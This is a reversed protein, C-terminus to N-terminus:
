QSPFLAIFYIWHKKSNWFVFFCCGGAGGGFSSNTQAHTDYVLCKHCPNNLIKVLVLWQFHGGGWGSRWSKRHPNIFNSMSTLKICLDIFICNDIYYSECKESTQRSVVNEIRSWYEGNKGCRYCEVLLRNM